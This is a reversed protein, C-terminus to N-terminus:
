RRRRRQRRAGGAGDHVGARFARAHRKGLYLPGSIGQRRATTASRRRSRWCTRRPSRRRAALVRPPREHRLQSASRSRRHRAHARLVRERLAASTSAATDIPRAGASPHIAMTMRAELPRAAAGAAPRRGRSCTIRPRRHVTPRMGRACIDDPSPLRRTSAARWPHPQRRSPPLEFQLPEWYANFMGHLSVRSQSARCRSRSPIRISAGTPSNSRWATGRSARGNCCSTSASRSAKRSWM